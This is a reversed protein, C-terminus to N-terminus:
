DGVSIAAPWKRYGLSKLVALVESCTPFPQRQERKFREMAKGFEFANGTIDSGPFTGEFRQDGTNAREDDSLRRDPKAYSVYKQRGM